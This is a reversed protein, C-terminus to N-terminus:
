DVGSCDVPGDVNYNRVQVVTRPGIQSGDLTQYVGLSFCHKEAMNWPQGDSADKSNCSNGSGNGDSLYYEHVDPDKTQNWVSVRVGLDNAYVDCVTMRDGDPYFDAYGVGCGAPVCVRIGAANPTVSVLASRAATEAPASTEAQAPSMMSLSFASALLTLILAIRKM